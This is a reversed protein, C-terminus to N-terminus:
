KYGVFAKPNFTLAASGFLASFRKCYVIVQDYKILDQETLNVKYMQAGSYQKLPNVIFMGVKSNRSNRLMLFLDPGETVKFEKALNLYLGQNMKVLAVQGQAKHMSDSGMFQGSAVVSNNLIQASSGLGVLVFVLLTKFFKTNM